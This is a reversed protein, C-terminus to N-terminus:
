EKGTNGLLIDRNIRERCNPCLLAQYNQLQIIVKRDENITINQIPPIIHKKYFMMMSVMNKRIQELGKLAIGFDESSKAKEFIDKAAEVGELMIKNFEEVAIDPLADGEEVSELVKTKDLKKRVNHIAYWTIKGNELQDGYDKMLTNAIKQDSIEPNQDVLSSVVSLM